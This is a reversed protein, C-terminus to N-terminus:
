EVYIEHQGITYVFRLSTLPDNSAWAWYRV